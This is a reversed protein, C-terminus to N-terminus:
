FLVGFFTLGVLGGLTPWFSMLVAAIIYLVTPVGLALSLRNNWPVTLFDQRNM